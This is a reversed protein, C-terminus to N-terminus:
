GAQHRLAVNGIQEGSELFRLADPLESFHFSKAVPAKAKGLRIWNLARAFQAHNGMSSGVLELHRFFLTPISLEFKGGSTSGCIAIRGGRKAARMSQNLTAAGVNDIVLDAGGEGAMEKGFEGNSDFGGSAGEGLAWAIKEQSRSTVFVRAGLALAQYMASASVGGGVGVVLVTEGGRLRAKELMRLATVGALGFSGAEEWSLEEPKRVANITPIVIKETFTGPHHEGLIGFSECYVIEDSRCHACEGCSMSPDLIIEDGIEFGAVGDGIADVVGAGDAGTTHPLEKPAPLGQSMWLDLHNLGSVELDVRVQGRGPDPEPVDNLAFSGIGETGTLQWAKM